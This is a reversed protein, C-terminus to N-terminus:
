VKQEVLKERTFLEIFDKHRQKLLLKSLLRSTNNTQDALADLRMLRLLGMSRTNLPKLLILNATISLSVWLFLRNTGITMDAFVVSFEVLLSTLTKTDVSLDEGSLKLSMRLLQMKM